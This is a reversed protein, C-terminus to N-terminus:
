IGSKPAYHSTIVFGYKKLARMVKRKRDNADGEKASLSVRTTLIFLESWERQGVSDMVLCVRTRQWLQAVGENAPIRVLIPDYGAQRFRVTDQVVVRQFEGKAGANAKV